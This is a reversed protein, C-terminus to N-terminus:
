KLEPFVALIIEEFEKNQNPRNDKYEEMKNLFVGKTDIKVIEDFRNYYFIAKQILNGSEKYYHMANNAVGLLTSFRLSVPKNMKFSLISFLINICPRFFATEVQQPNEIILAFRLYCWFVFNDSTKAKKYFENIMKEDGDKNKYGRKYLTKIIDAGFELDYVNNAFYAEAFLILTSKNDLVENVDLPLNKIHLIYRAIYFSQKKIITNLVNYEEGILFKWDLNDELLKSDYYHTKAEIQYSSIKRIASDDSLIYELESIFEFINKLQNEM